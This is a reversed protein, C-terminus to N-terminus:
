IPHKRLVQTKCGLNSSQMVHIGRVDNMLGTCVGNVINMRGTHMYLRLMQKIAAECVANPVVPLTRRERLLLTRQSDNSQTFVRYRFNQGSM